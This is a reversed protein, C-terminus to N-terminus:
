LNSRRNSMRQCLTPRRLISVSHSCRHSRSLVPLGNDKLVCPQIKERKFVSTPILKLLDSRKKGFGDEPAIEIDYEKETEKGELAKDIGPLVQQEGVCVIITGYTSNQSYIGQKKAAEESTTDFVIGEEKLKGEYELEVFDGKKITEPM